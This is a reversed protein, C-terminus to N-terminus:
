FLNIEIGKLEGLNLLRWITNSIKTLFIKKQFVTFLYTQFRKVRSVQKQQEEYQSLSNM